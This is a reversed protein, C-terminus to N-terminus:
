EDCAVKIDNLQLRPIDQLQVRAPPAVVHIGMALVAIVLVIIAAELKM